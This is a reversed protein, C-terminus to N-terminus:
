RKLHNLENKIVAIDTRMQEINGIRQEMADIKYLAVAGTGIATVAALVLSVPIDSFKGQRRQPPSQFNTENNM